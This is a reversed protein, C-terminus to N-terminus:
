RERSEFLSHDPNERSTHAALSAERKLLRVQSSAGALHEFATEAFQRSARGQGRATEIRSLGLFLQGLLMDKIPRPPDLNKTVVIALEVASKLNESELTDPRNLLRLTNFVIAIRAGQQEKATAVPPGSAAMLSPAQALLFATIVTVAVVDCPGRM